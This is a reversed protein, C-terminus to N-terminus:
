FKSGIGNQQDAKVSRKPTKELLRCGVVKHWL